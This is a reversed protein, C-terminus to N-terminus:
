TQLFDAGGRSTVVEGNGLMGIAHAGCGYADLAVDVNPNGDVLLAKTLAEAWWGSGALVAVAKLEGEPLSTATKPDILHHRPGLQTDWRRLAPTSVTVAGETLRVRAFSEDTDPDLLAVIWVDDNPATGSVFVDGGINVMAGEAGLSRLHRVAVEAAYGKGIGGLDLGVGAPTFIASSEQNVWVESCRSEINATMPEITTSTPIRAFTQDYGQQILARYITPDFRGSTRQWAALALTVVDRTSWHVSTTRDIDIDANIRGIDSAPLFRSWRTELDHILSETEVLAGDDVSVGIIEADCGMASFSRQHMVATTMM